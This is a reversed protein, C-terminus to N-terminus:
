ATQYASIGEQIIRIIEDPQCTSFSIDRVLGAKRKLGLVVRSHELFNFSARYRKQHLMFHIGAGGYETLAPLEDDPQITDVNSFPITWSFVGFSLRLSDSTIHIILTRYNLSYFSFVIFFFLFVIALWDVRSAIIRWTFLVLFILTLALFLFETRKSSINESYILHANM